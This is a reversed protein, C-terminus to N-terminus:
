RGYVAGPQNVIGMEIGAGRVIGMLELASTVHQTQPEIAPVMMPDGVRIGSLGHAIGQMLIHVPPHEKWYSM